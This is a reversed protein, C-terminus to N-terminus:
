PMSSQDASDHRGSRGRIEESPVGDCVLQHKPQLGCPARPTPPGRRRPARDGTADAEPRSEASGPQRQSNLSGSSWAGPIRANTPMGLSSSRLADFGQLGNRLMPGDAEQLLRRAIHVVGGPDIGLLNRDYAPHHIACLAIGNVM